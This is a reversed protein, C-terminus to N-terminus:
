TASLIIAEPYPRFYTQHALYDEDFEEIWNRFRRRVEYLMLAGRSYEEMTRSIDAREKEGAHSLLHEAARRLIGTHARRNPRRKLMALLRSRYERIVADFSREERNVLLTTLMGYERRGYATLIYKNEAHFQLLNRGSEHLRLERFDALIYLATLFHDLYAPDVLQWEEAHVIEGFRGFLAAAFLGQGKREPVEAEPSPFIEVGRTGCSPSKSKLVLGDLPDLRGTLDRAFRRLEETLDKMSAPQILHIGDAMAVLKLPERPVGLGIEMEPCVAILEMFPKMGELPASEVMRGNYRCADFGICRSVLVRPRPFDRLM